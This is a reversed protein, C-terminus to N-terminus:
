WIACYKHVIEYHFSKKWILHLLVVNKIKYCHFTLSKGVLPITLIVFFTDTLVFAQIQLFMYSWVDKEINAPLDLRPHLRLQVKIAYLSGAFRPPFKLTRNITGTSQM